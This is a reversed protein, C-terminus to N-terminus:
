EEFSVALDLLKEILDGYSLGSAAFLKAYMSISTFGPLTNIENLYVTGDRAVLFDVRALGKCDCARYARLALARIEDEKESGSPIRLLSAANQYKANYDYIENAPFIQGTVSVSLVDNGLVAAEIEQPDEIGQEAVVRRDVEFATRLAGALESEEHCKTIGISSGANSPKIFVPFTLRSSIERMVAEANERWSVREVTVWPTHRIGASVFVTNAYAKDMCVASALVRCGVYPVRMLEFLGQVTGDEGNKGHLVPFIVDPVFRSDEWLFARENLSIEVPKRVLNEWSRSEIEEASADTVFWKGERTIGIKLVEHEPRINRLVSAASMCSVEHETSRGGFLVAIKM